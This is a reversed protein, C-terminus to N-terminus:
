FSFEVGLWIILFKCGVIEIDFCTALRKQGLVIFWVYVFWLGQCCTCTCGGEVIGLVNNGDENKM